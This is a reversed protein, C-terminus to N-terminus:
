AIMGSNAINQTAPLIATAMCIASVTLASVAAFFKTSAENFTSM